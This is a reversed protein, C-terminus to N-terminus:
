SARSSSAPRAQGVEGGRISLGNNVFKAFGGKGRGHQRTFARLSRPDRAHNSTTSAYQRSPVNEYKTPHTRSTSSGGIMARTSFSGPLGTSHAMTGSGRLPSMSKWGPSSRADVQRRDPTFGDPGKKGHRTTGASSLPQRFVRRTFGIARHRACDRMRLARPTLYTLQQHIAPYVHFPFFGGRPRSTLPHHLHISETAGPTSSFASVLYKTTAGMEDSLNASYPEEDANRQTNAQDIIVCVATKQTGRSNRGEHQL